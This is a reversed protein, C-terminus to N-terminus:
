WCLVQGGSPQSTPPKALDRPDIRGVIHIYGLTRKLAPLLEQLLDDELPWCSEDEVILAQLARGRLAGGKISRPSLPLAGAINLEKALSTATGQTRALVGVVQAM